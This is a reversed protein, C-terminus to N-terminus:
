IFNLLNQFDKSNITELLLKYNKQSIIMHNFKGFDGTILVEDYINLCIDYEDNLKVHQKKSINEFQFNKISFLLKTNKTIIKIAEKFNVINIKM